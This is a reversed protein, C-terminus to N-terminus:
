LKYSPEDREPQRRLGRGGGLRVVPQHQGLREVQRRLELLRHLQRERRLGDNRIAAGRCTRLGYSGGM